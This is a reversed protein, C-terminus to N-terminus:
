RIVQLYLINCYIYLTLFLGKGEHGSMRERGVTGQDIPALFSVKVSTSGIDTEKVFPQNMSVTFGSCEAMGMLLVLSLGKM